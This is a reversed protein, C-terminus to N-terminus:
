EVLQVNMDINQLKHPPQCQEPDMLDSHRYTKLDAKVIRLPIDKRYMNNGKEQGRLYKILLVSAALTGPAFIGGCFMAIRNEKTWPIRYIGLVGVNSSSRDTYTRNKGGLIVCSHYPKEYGIHYTEISKCQDLLIESVVNIDATALLLLNANVISSPSDVISVRSEKKAEMYSEYYDIDLMSEVNVGNLGGLRALKEIELVIEYTYLADSILALHGSKSDKHRGSPLVVALPVTKSMTDSVSSWFKPDALDDLNLFEQANKVIPNELQM